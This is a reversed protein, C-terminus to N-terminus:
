LKSAFARGAACRPRWHGSGCCNGNVRRQRIAKAVDIVEFLHHGRWRRREDRVHCFEGAVKQDEADAALDARRQCSQGLAGRRVLTDHADRTEALDAKAVLQRAPADFADFGVEEVPCLDLLQGFQRVHHEHGAALESGGAGFVQGPRHVRVDRCQDGLGVRARTDDGIRRAAHVGVDVDLLAAGGLGGRGDRRGADIGVRADGALGHELMERPLCPVGPRM